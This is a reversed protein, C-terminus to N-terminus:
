CLLKMVMKALEVVVALQTAQYVVRARVTVAM